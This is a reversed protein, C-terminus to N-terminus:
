RWPTCSKIVNIVGTEFTDLKCSAQNDKGEGARCAPAGAVLSTLLVILLIILLITLLAALSAASAGIRPSGSEPSALLLLLM